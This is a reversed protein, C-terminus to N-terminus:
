VTKKSDSTTEPPGKGIHIYSNSKTKYPVASMTAIAQRERSIRPDDTKAQLLVCVYIRM